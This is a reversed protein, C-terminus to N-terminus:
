IKCWWTTWMLTLLVPVSVIFWGSVLIKGWDRETDITDIHKACIAAWFILIVLTAFHM